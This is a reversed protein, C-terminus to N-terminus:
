PGLELGATRVNDNGQGGGSVWVTHAHAVGMGRVGM